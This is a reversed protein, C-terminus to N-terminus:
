RKLLKIKEILKQNSPDLRIARNFYLLADDDKGMDRYVTGIHELTEPNEQGLALSKKLYDLAEQYNGLKYCIWGYTDLFSYNDPEAELAQQSLKKAKELDKNRDALSYAYNNLTLADPNPSLMLAKEYCYDASDANKERDYILGLQSWSNAFNSDLKLSLRMSNKAKAIENMSSYVLSELYPFRYDKVFKKTGRAAYGAAKDFKELYIFFNSIDLLIEPIEEDSLIAKEFFIDSQKINNMKYSLKAINLLIESDKEFKSKIREILNSAFTSDHELEITRRLIALYINALYNMQLSNDMENLIPLFSNYRNLNQLYYFTLEQAVKFNTKDSLYLTELYKLMATTDNAIRANQILNTLATQKYETDILEILLANAKPKNVFSLFSAYKFKNENNPEIQYIKDAVQTILGLDRGENSYIDFLLKYAEIYDKKQQLAVRLLKEAFQYNSQEFHISAAAYCIAYNSDYSLARNFETLAENYKKMEKLTLGNLYHGLAVQENHSSTKPKLSEQTLDTKQVSMCSVLTLVLCSFFINLLKYLKKM